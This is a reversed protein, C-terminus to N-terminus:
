SVRIYSVEIAMTNDGSVGSPTANTISIGIYIPVPTNNGSAIRLTPCSASYMYTVVNNAGIFIPYEFFAGGRQITITLVSNPNSTWAVGAGAPFANVTVLYVGDPSIPLASTQGSTGNINNDPALTITNNSFTGAFFGGSSPTTWITDYNTNSQKTLVQNTSGGAPVGIGNPGTNGTPGTPGTDGTNGANGTNGTPGTNGTHGTHGTPGTNGTHGTPGTNGTHGTHGTPGTHGTNGTHGTPGTNGTNGTPGTHGTNGTHGTPGTYGTHGTPGTNGTHGTPGTHGTNGTNGTPGTHGTNGTHGTHGTPGTHGTHGTNGTHGTPGTHGTNGTSSGGGGSWYSGTPGIVDGTVVIRDVNLVDVKVNYGGTATGVIKPQFVRQLLNASFPDFSGM